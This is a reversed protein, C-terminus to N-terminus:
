ATTRLEANLCLGCHHLQSGAAKRSVPMGVRTTLNMALTPM